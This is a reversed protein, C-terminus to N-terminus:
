RSDSARAVSSDERLLAAFVEAPDPRAHGRPPEQLIASVRTHLERAGHTVHALLQPAGPVRVLEGRPDHFLGGRGSYLGAIVPSTFPVGICLDALAVPIYPDIDHPVAIVRGSALLEHMSDAFERRPDQLSRKPKVILTVEPLRLLGEVDRFFQELMAPPYVTPGHGIALRMEKNVPPVDFVAVYRREPAEALGYAARAAAPTRALWRSDGSMVPGILRMAPPAGLARRRLWDEVAETWVWVEAAATVSRLLGLDRFSADSVSFCFTNAGYSWNITRVGRKRLAEVQPPEPWASSVSTLYTGCALARAAAIWPAAEAAHRWRVLSGSFFMAGLLAALAGLKAPLPLFGFSAVTTWRVGIRRLREAAEPPPPEALFYLCERPDILGREVAFSFSLRRDASAVEGASIDTWFVACPATDTNGERRFLARAQRVTKGAALVALWLADLVAFGAGTRRAGPHARRAMEDFLYREEFQIARWQELAPSDADARYALYADEMARHWEEVSFYDAPDLVEFRALRRPSLYEKRWYKVPIWLSWLRALWVSLPNLRQM